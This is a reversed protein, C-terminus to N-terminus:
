FDTVRHFQQVLSVGPGPHVLVFHHTFTLISSAGLARFTTLGRYRAVAYLRPHLPASGWSGTIVFSTSGASRGISAFISVGISIIRRDAAERAECNERALDRPNRQAGGWAKHKRGSGRALKSKTM